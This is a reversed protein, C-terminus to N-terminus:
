RAARKKDNTRAPQQMRLQSQKAQHKLILGELLVLSVWQEGRRRCRAAVAVGSLVKGSSVRCGANGGGVRCGGKRAMRHRRASLRRHEGAGAGACHGQALARSSLVGVTRRAESLACCCGGWEAGEREFCSVRCKRRGRPM